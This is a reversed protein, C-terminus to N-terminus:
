LTLDFILQKYAAALDDPTLTHDNTRLLRRGDLHAERAAAARDVRLLGTRTRRRLRRLGPEDEDAGGNRDAAEALGAAVEMEWNTSTTDVFVVDVDLNLLHAVSSFVEAAVEELM